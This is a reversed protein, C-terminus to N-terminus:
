QSHKLAGPPKALGIQPSTLPTTLEQVISDVKLKLNETNHTAFELKNIEGRETESFM